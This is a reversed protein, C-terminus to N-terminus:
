DEQKQIGASEDKMFLTGIAEGDMINYLTKVNEGSAIVTYIGHKTAYQAAGLKTAMGGTGLSSGSSGGGALIEPTIAEVVPIKVAQDDKGPDADYLGDVDSLIVLADADILNATMASLIDNDGFCEEEIEDTSICDNENVIPIIKRGLLAKFTNEANNRKIENYFVDKTLLIQAINQHYSDFSRHYLEMLLGQGVSAAVQKDELTKPREEMNLRHMGCGIAGSSVLVMRYGYNEMDTLVRALQDLKRLNVIGNDHTLSTTGMKVVVTRAQSLGERIEEM